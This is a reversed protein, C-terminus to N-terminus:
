FLFKLALQIQRRGDREASIYSVSSVDANGSGNLTNLNAHNFMNYFEARFQVTYKGESGFRTNKHIGMDMNWSGPGVFYDRTTMNAPWPGFDSLGMKANAYVGALAAAPTLDIYNYDDPLGTPKSAGVGTRSVNGTEQMRMCVTAANTCDFISFPTGTQATFIPVLSWGDLMFKAPGKLNKAFPIDWAGSIVLRQRIDFEANGWDQMPNFPDLYGLNFSNSTESFTTSLDDMAHSWTYNARLTLGSNHINRVEVRTNLANYRSSAAAGRFNINSYQTNMRDLCFGSPCAKGLYAEASGYRNINSIDYLDTGKSGNYELAVLLGRKVERELVLSWFQSYATPINQDVARLSTAPLVKSGTSGSLPGYNSSSLPLVPFDGPAIVSIVAYNPPNQIVNFTVNGFNREYGIGYGGRLSTKGDGFVDYAFGVRPAFNKYDPSWLGGAPSQNAIQVTAAAIQQYINSGSGLVMNSDLAPNANHQVGFYEYRLGLNITLRRNVKWADQAYAAWEEYRNSRSFNPPGVPLTVTGGPFKGQPNIGVQLNYEQGLFFNDMGKGFSSGLAAVANFYAGFTRNDRLNEFQGGFRFTHSGKTFTLDENFQLFNQPGGFPIASGPSFPLYGPLGVDNGLIKGAAAGSGLYLTPGVPATGLPQVNNFRNFSVKSQSVFRPSFTHVGSLVASNNYQFNGTDYGAYPSNSVSGAQDAESQLGYRFYLQTKDSWNYDLRGVLYYTNQPTGAGSDSPVSYTVRDFFPLNANASKCAGGTASGSCPDFGLGVLQNRTYKGLVSLSPRLAGYASFFQQTAAASAGILSADPVWVIDSAASRVRTWETSQFFFLKDKLKPLVPGGVSYGFQNRTFVGERVANANDYFSGTALASVRNFEYLSGHYVNTGNKTSVNVIGGTARGFEATFNNSMLSMEQISDLPVSQGVGAGFEDNNPVGDLLLNTGSSRAGNITLGVGRGASGNGGGNSVNGSTAVFDYPNRNLSPLEVMQKTDIVQSITQTETNVAVGSEGRVEVVVVEKGVELQFDLSMKAGVTIEVRKVNKGFGKAEVSVDYIGPLLGALLYSGSNNTTGAHVTGTATNKATIAANPVAAKSQDTVNGTLQGIETQALAGTPLLMAALCGTLLVLLIKRM